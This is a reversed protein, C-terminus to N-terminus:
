SESSEALAKDRKQNSNNVTEDEQDKGTWMMKLMPICCVLLIVALLAFGIGGSLWTAPIITPLFSSGVCGLMMVLVMLIMKNDM